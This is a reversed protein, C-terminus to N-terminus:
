ILEYITPTPVNGLDFNTAIYRFSSATQTLSGSYYYLDTVPQTLIWLYFEDITTYETSPQGIARYYYNTFAVNGNGYVSASPSFMINLYGNNLHGVYLYPYDSKSREFRQYLLEAYDSGFVSTLITDTNYVIPTKYDYGFNQRESNIYWGKFQQGISTPNVTPAYVGCGSKVSSLQYLEEGNMFKVTVDSLETSPVNVEITAKSFYKKPRITPLYNYVGNENITASLEETLVPSSSKLTFLDDLLDIERM